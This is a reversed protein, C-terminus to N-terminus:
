EKKSRYIIIYGYHTKQRVRFGDKRLHKIVTDAERKSETRKFLNYKIGRFDIIQPVARLNM